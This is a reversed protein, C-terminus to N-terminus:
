LGSANILFIDEMIHDRKAMMDELQDDIEVGGKCELLAIEM